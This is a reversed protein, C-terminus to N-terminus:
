LLSFRYSLRYTISYLFPFYTETPNLQSEGYGATYVAAIESMLRDNFLYNVGVSFTPSVHRDHLVMDSRYILGLGAGSWLRMRTNPFRMFIKAMISATATNSFLETQEDNLFSFLSLPDFTIEARPFHAYSAELAFYDTFEYGAFANWAPGGEQVSLPTSLSMASNNNEGRPVLGFWTTSGYGAGMGVYFSHDSLNGSSSVACESVSLCSVIALLCCCYRYM